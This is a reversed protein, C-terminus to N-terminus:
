LGVWTVAKMLVMKEVLYEVMMAVMKEVLQAAMTYDM